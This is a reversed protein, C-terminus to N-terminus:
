QGVIREIKGDGSPETQVVNSRGVGMKISHNSQSNVPGFVDLRQLEQLILAASYNLRGSESPTTDHGAIRRHATRDLPRRCVPARPLPPRHIHERGRASCLPYSMPQPLGSFILIFSSNSGSCLPSLDGRRGVCLSISIACRRGANLPPSQGNRIAKWKAFDM